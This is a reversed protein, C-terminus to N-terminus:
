KSARMLAIGTKDEQSGIWVTAGDQANNKVYYGLNAGQMDMWVTQKWGKAVMQSKYFSAVESVSDGTEYYRWEIKAWEEEAPPIKWRVNQIQSAGSYVPMDSWTFGGGSSTESASSPTSSSTQTQTETEEAGGEEGGCAVFGICGVLTVMAVLLIVVRKM